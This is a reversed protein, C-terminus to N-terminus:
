KWIGEVLSELGLSSIVLEETIDELCMSTLHHRGVLIVSQDEAAFEKLKGYRLCLLPYQLM